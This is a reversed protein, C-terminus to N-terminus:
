PRSFYRGPVAPQGRRLGGPLRVAAPEGPCDGPRASTKKVTIPYYTGGKVTADNSVIVAERGQILGIATAIGASPPDDYMGCAALPSLELLPTNPDVLAEIRERALLKGRAKHRQRSAESGGLQAQVLREKLESVLGSMHERNARFEPSGTQIKSEIRDM